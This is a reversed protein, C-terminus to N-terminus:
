RCSWTPRILPAPRHERGGPEPTRAAVSNFDYFAGPGAGEEGFGFGAKQLLKVATEIRKFDYKM